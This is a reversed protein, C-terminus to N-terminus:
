TPSRRRFIASVLIRGVFLPNGVVYRRWMRRPEICLRHLWQLGTKRMWVPAEKLSGAYFMVTGGGIHWIIASPFNRHLLDGVQESKPSGMGLLIFDTAPAKAVQRVYDEAPLFGSFTETIRLNLGDHQITDAAQKVEEENGGILIATSPPAGPDALYARFSDTMNCRESIRFGFLRAAWVIAMGDAAIVDSQNVLARLSPDTWCLNYIHANVLNIWIGVRPFSQRADRIVALFDKIGCPSCSVPGMAFKDPSTTM